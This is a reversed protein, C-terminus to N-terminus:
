LKISPIKKISEQKFLFHHIGTGFIRDQFIFDMSEFPEESIDKDLGYTIIFNRHQTLEYTNELEVLVPAYEKDRIKLKLNEQMLFNLQFSQEKFAEKSAVTQTMIDFEHGEEKNPAIKLIFTLSGQYADKLSDIDVKDLGISKYDRYILYETPLYRATIEFQNVRKRQYLGNDPSVLYKFYDDISLESPYCGFCCLTIILGLFTRKMM